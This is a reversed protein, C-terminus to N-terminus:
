SLMKQNKRFWPSETYLFTLNTSGEYAAFARGQAKAITETKAM